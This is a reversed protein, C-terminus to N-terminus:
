WHNVVLLCEYRDVPWGEISQDSECMYRLSFLQKATGRRRQSTVGEISRIGALQQGFRRHKLGWLKRIKRASIGCKM